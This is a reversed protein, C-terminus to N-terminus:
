NAFKFVIVDGDEVIYDKGQLKLKGSEKAQNRGGAEVFDEYKVIEAKIFGKEFDKHIVGAAQPATSGKKVTRARTEKKGTTFYYMLGVTDFALSIVDDLTPIDTHDELLMAREEDDMEIMEAELRACVPVTPKGLTQGLEKAINKADSLDNESVNIAYIFPKNTLFNYPKLIKKEEDTLEDQIDYMLQRNDLLEKARELVRLEDVTERDGSKAKRQLQPLKKEIQEMDSLILETTIIDEDRIPDVDGEVHNIDADKFHRLVQVIADVERIHSLFANGMGEGQSAGKVLGAIDVFKITAPIIKETESIESLKQLRVDNVDVVGVNPDITCFPFNAADAAYSKTM